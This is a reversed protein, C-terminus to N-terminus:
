QKALLERKAAAYEDDTIAARDHLAVLRELEAATSPAGARGASAARARALKEGIAGRMSVGQADPFQEAIQGRLVHAGVFALITFLLM